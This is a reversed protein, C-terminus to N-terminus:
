FKTMLEIAGKLQEDSLSPKGGRPPMNGKGSIAYKLLTALDGRGVWDAQVHMKPAGLVGSKHCAACVQDVVQQASLKASAPEAKASATSALAANADTNVQGVPATRANIRASVQEPFMDGPANDQIANAAFFIIVGFLGLFGLVIAFTVYFKKDQQAQESVIVGKAVWSVGRSGRVLALCYLWEVRWSAGASRM